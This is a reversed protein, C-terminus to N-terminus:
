GFRESQYKVLLELQKENSDYAARLKKHNAEPQGILREYVEKQAEASKILDAIIIRKTGNCLKMKQEM